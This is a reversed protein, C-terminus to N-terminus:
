NVGLLKDLQGAKRADNIEQATMGDLDSQGLQRTSGGVNRPGSDADGQFRSGGQAALYPKGKLLEEIAQAIVATDVVGDNSVEFSSLDIFQLADTPDALKGAAGARVEAKLIRMNAEALAEDKVQQREIEAKHEAERGEAAARLADLEAQLRKKEDRAQNREAKMADIAKKGADGLGDVQQQDTDTPESHQETEVDVSDTQVEDTATLQESM